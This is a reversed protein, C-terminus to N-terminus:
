YLRSSPPIMKESDCSQFAHSKPTTPSAATHFGALQQPKTCVFQKAYRKEGGGGGEEGEGGVSAFFARTRPHKCENHLNLKGLTVM